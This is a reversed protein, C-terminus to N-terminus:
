LNQNLLSIFSIKFYMFFTSFIIIYMRPLRGLLYCSLAENTMIHTRTFVNFSGVNSLSGLDIRSRTMTQLLSFIYCLAKLNLWKDSIFYTTNIFIHILLFNIKLFPWNSWFKSSLIKLTFNLCISCLKLCQIIWFKLGIKLFLAQFYLLIYRCYAYNLSEM